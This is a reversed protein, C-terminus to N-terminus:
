KGFVCTFRQWKTSAKIWLANTVLVTRLSDGPTSNTQKFAPHVMTTTRNIMFFISDTLRSHMYVSSCLLAGAVSDLLSIFLLFICCLLSFVVLKSVSNYVSYVCSLAPNKKAAPHLQLECQWVLIIIVSRVAGKCMGSQM